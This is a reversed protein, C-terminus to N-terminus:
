RLRARRESGLAELSAIALAATSEHIQAVHAAADTDIFRYDSLRAAVVGISPPRATHPVPVPTSSGGM